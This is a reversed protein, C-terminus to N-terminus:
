KKTSPVEEAAKLFFPCGYGQATTATINGHKQMQYRQCGKQYVVYCNSGSKGDKKEWENQSSPARILQWEPRKDSGNTQMAFIYEKENFIKVPYRYMSATENKQANINKEEQFGIITTKNWDDKISANDNYNAYQIYHSCRICPSKGSFKVNIDSGFKRRLWDVMQETHTIASVYSDPSNNESYKLQGKKLRWIKGMNLKSGRVLRVFNVIGKALNKKIKQRQIDIEDILTKRNTEYHSTKALINVFNKVSYECIQDETMDPITAIDNAYKQLRNLFDIIATKKKELSEDNAKTLSENVIGILANLASYSSVCCEEDISPQKDSNLEVELEGAEKNYNVNKNTYQSYFKFLNINTNKFLENQNSLFSQVVMKMMEVVLARNQNQRANTVKAALDDGEIINQDNSDDVYLYLLDMVSIPRVNPLATDKELYKYLFEDIISSIILYTRGEIRIAAVNDSSNASQQVENLIQGDKCGFAQANQAIIANYQQVNTETATGRVVGTALLLCFGVISNRVIRKLIGM